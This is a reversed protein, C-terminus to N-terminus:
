SAGAENKNNHYQQLCHWWYTNLITNQFDHIASQAFGFSTFGLLETEGHCIPTEIASVSIILQTNFYVLNYCRDNFFFHM